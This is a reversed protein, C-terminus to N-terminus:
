SAGFPVKPEQMSLGLLEKREFQFSYAEFNKFKSQYILSKVSLSPCDLCLRLHAIDLELSSHPASITRCATQQMVHSHNLYVITMPHMLKRFDADGPGCTGRILIPFADFRWTSNM